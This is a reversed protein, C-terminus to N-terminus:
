RSRRLFSGTIFSAAALPFLFIPAGTSPITGNTKVNNTKQNYPGYGSNTADIKISSIKKGTITPAPSLTPTTKSISLIKPLTIKKGLNIRGTLVAIFVVVVVLGLIFSIAKNFGEM